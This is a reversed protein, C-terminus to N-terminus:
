TSTFTGCADCEMIPPLGNNYEKVIWLNCGPCQYVYAGKHCFKCEWSGNENVIVLKM